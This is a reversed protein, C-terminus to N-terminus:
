SSEENFIINMRDGVNEYSTDITLGEGETLDSSDKGISQYLEWGSYNPELAGYVTFDLSEDYQPIPYSRFVTLGRAHSFGIFKNNNSVSINNVPTFTRNVTSYKSSAESGLLYLSGSEDEKKPNLGIVKLDKSDKLFGEIVAVKEDVFDVYNYFQYDSFGTISDYADVDNPDIAGFTTYSIDKYSIELGDDISSGFELNKSTTTQSLTDEIILERDLYIRIDSGVGVIDLTHLSNLGISNTINLSSSIFGIRDRFIRVEGFKTGDEIRIYGFKGSDFEAEQDVIFSTEITWGEDNSVTTDWYSGVTRFHANYYGCFTETDSVSISIYYDRGKKILSPDLTYSNIASNVTFNAINNAGPASGIRLDFYQPSRNAPPHVKWTIVPHASVIDLPNLRGDVRIDSVAFDSDGITVVPSALPEGYSVGDYPTMEFYIEDGVSLDMRVFRKNKQDEQLESNIYWDILSKDTDIDSEFSFDAKLIDNETPSLPLISLSDAVPTSTSVKVAEVTFRQGKELGDSPIIDAFWVDGYSLFRQSIETQDDFDRQHIGNKFWRILTGSEVDGLPDSYTYVLKLDSSVSPSSPSIYGVGVSPRENFIFSFTTWQNGSAESEDSSEGLKDKVFVQGYYTEGRQLPLGDYIHHRTSSYIRDTDLLNGNFNEKGHNFSSNGIKLDYYEQDVFSESTVVGNDAKILPTETFSWSIVPQGDSVRVLSDTSNNVKVTLDFSM